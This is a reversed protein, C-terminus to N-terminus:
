SRRRFSSGNRESTDIGFTIPVDEIDWNQLTDKFVAARQACRQVIEQPQGTCIEDALGWSLAQFWEQPFELSETLTVPQTILAQYLVSVTAAADPTQWFKIIVNSQQKDVSYGTVAGRTVQNGILRYDTWSLPTLPTRNGDSAVRDAGLVRLPKTTLIAGGPGLAYAATGAVLTVNVERNTWLKIGEVGWAAIMDGLRGLYEAYDDSTPLEGRQLLGANKMALTIIRGASNRDAPGPM